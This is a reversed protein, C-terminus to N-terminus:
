WSNPLTSRGPNQMHLVTYLWSMDRAAAEKHLLAKPAAVVVMCALCTNARHRRMKVVCTRSRIFMCRAVGGWTVWCCPNTQAEGGGLVCVCGCGWRENMSVGVEPLGPPPRCGHVPHSRWGETEGTLRQGQKRFLQHARKRTEGVGAQWMVVEKRSSV